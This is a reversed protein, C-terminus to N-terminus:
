LLATVARNLDGGVRRLVATAQERDFGMTVLLQVNEESVPEPAPVATAGVGGGTAIEAHADAVAANTRARTAGTAAPPPRPVEANTSRAAPPASEGGMFPAVIRAAVRELVRPFRWAQVGALNAMYAAGAVYGCAAPLLSAPWVALLLQMALAYTFFRQSLTVGLVRFRDNDPVKHQYLYLKAFLFAYPGSALTNPGGYSRLLLMITVELLTAFTTTVFVFACYKRTGYLRELTRYHYALLGGCLVEWNTAFVAHTTVLRHVQGQELLHPVLHVPFLHKIRLVSAGVSAAAMGYVALKTAPANYFGSYTGHPLM